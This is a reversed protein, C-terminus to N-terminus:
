EQEKYPPGTRENELGKVEPTVITCQLITRQMAQFYMEKTDVFFEEKVQNMMVTDRYVDRVKELINEFSEQQMPVIPTKSLQRKIRFYNM